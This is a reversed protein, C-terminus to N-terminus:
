KFVSEADELYQAVSTSDVLRTIPPILASSYPPDSWTADESDGHKILAVLLMLSWSLGHAVRLRSRRSLGTALQLGLGLLLAFLLGNGAYTLALELFPASFNFGAWTVLLGLLGVANLYLLALVFHSAFRAEHKLVRGILALLGAWVLAVIPMLLLGQLFEGPEFLSSLGQYELLANFMLMLGSLLMFWLPQALVQLRHEGPNLALAEAVPHDTHYFRLAVKGLWVQAGSAIVLPSAIPKRRQDLVGNRSGLDQLTWQGQDDRRLLAHYPSVHEDQLILDNDFARGLRVQTGSAQHLVPGGPGRTGIEVILGM